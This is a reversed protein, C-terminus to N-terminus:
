ETETEKKKEWQYSIGFNISPNAGVLEGFGGYLGVNLAFHEGFGQSAKFGYGVYQQNNPSLGTHIDHNNTRQNKMSIRGETRFAIWTKSFLKYGVELAHNTEHSYNNTRFRFANDIYFYVKNWGRGFSISPEITWSSYGTRLATSCQYATSGNEINLEGSLLFAKNIFNYRAGLRANGIGFLSGAPLLTDSFRQTDNFYDSELVDDGTKVYKFPLVGILTLKNTIGYELYGQITMDTVERRLPIRPSINGFLESYQLYSVGIQAYGSGKPKTWPGGSLAPFSLLMGLLILFPIRPRMIPKPATFQEILKRIVTM